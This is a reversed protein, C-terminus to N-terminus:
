DSRTEYVAMVKALHDPQYRDDADLMFFIDGTAHLFGTVMAALQGGNRQTIILVDPRTGFQQKAIELTRDTSGDDVIVIQDPKRSQALASEVAEVLYNAYNYANIVVSVTM